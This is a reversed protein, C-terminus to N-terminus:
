KSHDKFRSKVTSNKFIRCIISIDFQLSLVTHILYKNIYKIEIFVIMLLGFHCLSFYIVHMSCLIHVIGLILVSICFCFTQLIDIFTSFFTPMKINVDLTKTGTRYQVVQYICLTEGLWVCYIMQHETMMLCTFLSFLKVYIKM